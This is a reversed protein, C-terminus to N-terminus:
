KRMKLIEQIVASGYKAAVRSLFGPEVDLAFALLGQLRYADDESLAGLSYKHVLSSITRKRERGLSVAGDNTIILGTIRRQYKKSVLTTKKNNFTLRPYELSRVIKRIAPEVESCVGKVSTSFALDDAYRSYVFGHAESWASVAADFEFMISNSLIPSSPAGISLCLKGGGEPKISCIRAVDQIDTESLYQDLHKSFHSILAEAKISTFFNKFDFKALYSSNKHLSANQSISAKAVYATACTHVPLRHFLNEILWYQLFKTEKAPQAITRLGGTRKPITYIKYTHPARLILRNLQKENVGLSERLAARLDITM